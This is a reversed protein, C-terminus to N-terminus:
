CVGVSLNAIQLDLLCKCAFWLPLPDLSLFSIHKQFLKCSHLWMFIENPIATHCSTSSHIPLASHKLCLCHHIASMIAQALVCNGSSNNYIFDLVQRHEERQKCRRIAAVLGNCTRLVTKIHLAPSFTNINTQVQRVTNNDNERQIFHIFFREM